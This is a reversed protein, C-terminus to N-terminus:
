DSNTLVIPSYEYLVIGIYMTRTCHNRCAKLETGNRGNWETTCHTARHACGAIRVQTDPVEHLLTLARPYDVRGLQRLQQLERAGIRAEFLAVLVRVRREGERRADRVGVGFSGFKQESGVVAVDEQEANQGERERKEGDDTQEREADQAAAGGCAGVGIAAGVVLVRREGSTRIARQRRGRGRRAVLGGSHEESWLVVQGRTCEPGVGGGSVRRRMRGGRRRGCLFERRRAKGHVEMPVPDFRLRWGRLAAVAEGRRRELERHVVSFRLLRAVRILHVKVARRQM